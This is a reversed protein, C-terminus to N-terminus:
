LYGGRPEPLAQYADKAVIMEQVREVLKWLAVGRLSSAYQIDNAVVAHALGAGRVALEFRSSPELGVEPPQAAPYAWFDIDRLRRYVEAMEETTLTLDTTVSPDTVMDHTFTGGATDLVNRAMVGYRLVFEFDPPMAAPVDAGGGLVVPAVGEMVEWVAPRLAQPGSVVIEDDYERIRFYDVGDRVAESAETQMAGAGTRTWELDDAPLTDALSSPAEAPNVLVRIVSAGDTFAFGYFRGDVFPNGPDGAGETEWWPAPRFGEPVRYSLFAYPKGGEVPRLGADLRSMLQERLEPLSTVEGSVPPEPVPTTATPATATPAPPSTVAAGPAEPAGGPPAPSCGGGLVASLAVTLLIATLTSTRTPVAFDRGAVVVLGRVNPGM